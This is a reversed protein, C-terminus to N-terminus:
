SGDPQLESVPRTPLGHFAWKMQPPEDDPEAAATALPATTKASPESVPPDSRIGACQQPMVPQFGVQPATGTAPAMASAGVSSVTPIRARLAESMVAAACM